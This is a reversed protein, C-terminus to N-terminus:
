PSDVNVAQVRAPDDADRGRARNSQLEGLRARHRPRCAAPLHAARGSRVGTLSYELSRASLDVGTVRFGRRALEISHRGRGCAVDLVSNGPALALEEVLFDVQRLTVDHEPQVYDLWGSEFFGDYWRPDVETV